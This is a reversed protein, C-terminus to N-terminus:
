SARLLTARVHSGRWRRSEEVTYTRGGYIVQDAISDEFAAALPDGGSPQVAGRKYFANSFAQSFGTPQYLDEADDPVYCKLRELVQAGGVFDSDELALPQVSAPLPTDVVQGPVYEGFQNRSGPMTRRRTITQPFSFAGFRM